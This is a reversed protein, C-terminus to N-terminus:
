FGLDKESKKSNFSKLIQNRNNIGLYPNAAAIKQENLYFPTILIKNWHSTIRSFVWIM